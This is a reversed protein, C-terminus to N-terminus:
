FKLALQRNDRRPKICPRPDDKFVLQTAPKPLRAMKTICLIEAEPLSLGGRVVEERNDPHLGIVACVDGRQRIFYAIM